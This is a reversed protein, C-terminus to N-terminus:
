RFEMVCFAILTVFRRKKIYNQWSCSIQRIKFKNISMWDLGTRSQLLKEWGIRSQFLKELRIRDSISNQESIQVFQIPNPNSITEFRIQVSRSAQYNQLVPAYHLMLDCFM